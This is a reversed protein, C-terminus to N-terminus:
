SRRAAPPLRGCGSLRAAWATGEKVIDPVSAKLKTEVDDDDEKPLMLSDIMDVVQGTCRSLERLEDRLTDVATELDSAM